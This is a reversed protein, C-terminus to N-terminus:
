RWEDNVNLHNENTYNPKRESERKQWTVMAARWDKMKNKGVYWNKSQYFAIFREADFSYNKERIRERVQELSPPVFRTTEPKDSEDSASREKEKVKEKSFSKEKEKYIEKEIEKFPTHPSSKEKKKKIHEVEQEVGQEVEQEVQRIKYCFTITSKKVWKDGKVYRLLGKKELSKVVSYFGMISVGIINIIKRTDLEITQEVEQEVEQEVVQEVSKNKQRLLHLLYFYLNAENATFKGAAYFAQIADM